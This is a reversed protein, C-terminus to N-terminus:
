AEDPLTTASKSNFGLAHTQKQKTLDVNVQYDTPGLPLKSQTGFIDDKVKKEHIKKM